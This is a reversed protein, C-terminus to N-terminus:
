LDFGVICDYFLYKLSLRYFLRLFLSNFSVLVQLFSKDIMVKFFSLVGKGHILMCDKKCGGCAENECEM